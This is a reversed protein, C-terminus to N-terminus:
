KASQIDIVETDDILKRLDLKALDSYRLLIQRKPEGRGAEWESVRARRSESTLGLKEAM